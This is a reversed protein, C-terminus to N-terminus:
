SYMAASVIISMFAPMSYSLVGRQGNCGKKHKPTKGSQMLKSNTGAKRDADALKQKM